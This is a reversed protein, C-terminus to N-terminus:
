VLLITPLTLHTYSVPHAYEPQGICPVAQIRVGDGLAQQLGAILENSGALECSVSDCVRVTLEPPAENRETVVDFHHYFTAVEYVETPALKMEHALAVLHKASLSGYHDQILHLHEIMLDRQRSADGLLERVQMLANVDVLRGKGQGKKRRHKKGIDASATAM